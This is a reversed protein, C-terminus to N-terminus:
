LDLKIGEIQARVRLIMRYEDMLDFQKKLLGYDCAPTFKLKGMKWDNLMKLLKNARIDLQIFEAIFREKYDESLMLDKTDEITAPRRKM